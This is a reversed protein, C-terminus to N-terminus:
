LRCHRAVMVTHHTPTSKNLNKKIEHQKLNPHPTFNIDLTLQQLIITPQYVNKNTLFMKNYVVPLCFFSKQQQRVDPPNKKLSCYVM